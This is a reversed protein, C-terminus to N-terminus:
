QKTAEDPGQQGGRKVVRAAAKYANWFDPADPAYVALLDTLRQVLRGNEKILRELGQRGTAGATDNLRGETAAARFEQLLKQAQQYHEPLFRRKALAASREPALSLLRRAEEAFSTETLKSLAGPQGALAQLRLDNTATGLAKIGVVLRKLLGSLQNRIGRKRDPNRDSDATLVQESLAQAQELSRALQERPGAVDEELDAYQTKKEQLFALLTTDRRLRAEILDNQM